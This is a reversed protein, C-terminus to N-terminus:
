STNGLFAILALAWVPSNTVGITAGGLDAAEGFGAIAKAM